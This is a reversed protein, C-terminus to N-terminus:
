CSWRAGEHGPHGERVRASVGSLFTRGPICVHLHLIEHVICALCDAGVLQDHVPDRTLELAAVEFPTRETGTM